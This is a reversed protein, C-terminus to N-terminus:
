SASKKSEIKTFPVNVPNKYHKLTMKIDKHGMWISAHEVQQGLSQMLDVFGKRACYVDITLGTLTQLEKSEPREIDAAKLWAVAQRQEPFLLPIYKLSDAEEEGEIKTQNVVLVDVGDDHQDLTLGEAALQDVEIPRLGLWLSIYLWRYRRGNLAGKLEALLTTTLRESERRVGKKNRQAKALSSRFKRPPMPAQEFFSGQQKAVFRGWMNLMQIIKKAYDVSCQRGIMYQYFKHVDEAYNKPEVRVEKIMAQVFNFHSFLKRVHAENGASASKVRETFQEIYNQPFFVGDFHGILAVRRASASAQSRDVKREKNVQKIRARAAAVTLTPDIGVKPYAMAPVAVQKRKGETWIEEYLSWSKKSKKVYFTSM